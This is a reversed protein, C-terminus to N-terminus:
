TLAVRSGGGAANGQLSCAACTGAMVVPIINKMVPDPNMVGM